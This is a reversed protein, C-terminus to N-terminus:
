VVIEGKVGPLMQKLQEETYKESLPTDRLYLNRGVKLDPPISKIDSYILYLDGGVKLGYSLTKIKTSNLNLDGDIELNPPLSSIDSDSLMLGGVKLDNPLNQISTGNLWLTQKVELNSPLSEIETNSLKLDGGIKLGPPLSKINLRNLDVDGKIILDESAIPESSMLKAVLPTKYKPKKLEIFKFLNLINVYEVESDEFETFVNLDDEDMFSNTEYNFQYKESSGPKLFIFLPGKSIYNDFHERTKGTATCWETGSGLECSAGYLDKRGKPLEYVNFGDVTGIYFEKYKDTKSVGKQQSVDESEKNNIEVSKSIFQSLDNQTKYQNIDAFPYEKKRRDFTNFYKKYKYIDEAKIIKDAVKKALWTIYATKPTINTIENFDNQSIKGSDVFQIKLQEVSVETLAEKLLNTLKIM